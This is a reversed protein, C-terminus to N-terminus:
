QRTTLEWILQVIAYCWASLSCPVHPVRGCQKLECHTCSFCGAMWGRTQSTLAVNVLAVCLVHWELRRAVTCVQMDSAQGCGGSRCLM